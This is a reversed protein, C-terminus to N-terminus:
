PLASKVYGPAVTAVVAWPHMCASRAVVGRAIPLEKVWLSGFLQSKGKKVRSM